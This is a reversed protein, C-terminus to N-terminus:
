GGKYVESLVTFSFIRDFGESLDGGELPTGSKIQLGLEMGLKSSSSFPFPFPLMGTQIAVWDNIKKANDLSHVMSELDDLKKDKASKVVRKVEDEESDSESEAAGRM